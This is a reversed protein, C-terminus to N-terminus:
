EIDIMIKFNLHNNHNYKRFVNFFTRLGENDDILFKQYKYVLIMHIFDGMFYSFTAVGVLLIFAIIIRETNSKPVIDGLGVTSLSTFAFYILM